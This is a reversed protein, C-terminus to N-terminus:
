DLCLKIGNDEMVNCHKCERGMFSIKKTSDEQNYQDFLKFEDEM